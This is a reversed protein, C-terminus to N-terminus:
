DKYCDFTLTSVSYLSITIFETLCAFFGLLVLISINGKNFSFFLDDVVKLLTTETIQGPCYRSLFIYCFNHSNFFSSVQSAIILSQHITTSIITIFVYIKTLLTVFALKFCQPFIGFVLSSFLDTLPSLLSDLCETLFTSLIANLDCSM